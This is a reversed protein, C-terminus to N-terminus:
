FEYALRTTFGYGDNDTGGDSVAYDKDYFYELTVTTGTFINMAASTIYRQEPLELAVAEWSKQYGIAFVTEKSFLSTTYALESNWAGPEAGDTAGYALEAPTFSDLATTYETILSFPGYKGGLNLSFGSVNETLMIEGNAATPLVDAIGGSSAINNVWSIGASLVTEEKEYSYSLSAGFGNITDNKPDPDAPDNEGIGNYAFVTGTFGNHEFGVIAGKEVIEGVTLTLPDQIMNTSFDGFPAYIKGGTLFFPFTETKGLTIHAEDIYLDENGETGDYEVVVKGTAWDTVKIDFILDVTDLVFESSHNGAFDKGLKYDGEISGSLSVYQNIGQGQKEKIQRAVEQEIVTKNRELEHEASPAREAAPSAPSANKKEMETLRQNLQQNQQMLQQVQQKFQEMESAANAAQVPITNFLCLMGVATLALTRNLTKTM